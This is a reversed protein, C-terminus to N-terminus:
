RPELAPGLVTDLLKSNYHDPFGGRPVRRHHPERDPQLGPRARVRAAARDVLDNCSVTSTTWGSISTSTPASTPTSTTAPPRSISAPSSTPWRSTTGPRPSRHTRSIGSSRPDPRRQRACGGGAVHVPRPHPDARRQGSARELPQGRLQVRDAAARRAHHRHQRGGTRGPHSRQLRRGPRQHQRHRVAGPRRHGRRHLRPPEALALALIRIPSPRRSTMPAASRVPSGRRPRPVRRGRRGHVRLADGVERGRHAPGLLVGAFGGALDLGVAATRDAHSRAPGRAPQQGLATLTTVVADVEAPQRCGCPALRATWWSRVPPGSSRRDAPQLRSPAHITIAVAAAALAALVRQRTM